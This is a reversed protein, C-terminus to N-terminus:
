SLKSFLRGSLFCQFFQGLDVKLLSVEELLFHKRAESLGHEAILLNQKAPSKCHWKEAMLTLCHSAVSVQLFVAKTKEVARLESLVIYSM